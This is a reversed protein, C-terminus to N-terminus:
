PLGFAYVNGNESGVYVVGDAVAPSSYVSNGKATSYSRQLVLSGVNQVGLMTECPNTRRMDQRLFEAWRGDADPCFPQQSWAVSVLCTCWILALGEIRQM